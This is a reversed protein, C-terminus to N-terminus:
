FQELEWGDMGDMGDMGDVREEKQLMLMLEGLVWRGADAGALKM